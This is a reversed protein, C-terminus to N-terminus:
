DEYLLHMHDIYDCDYCYLFINCVVIVELIM